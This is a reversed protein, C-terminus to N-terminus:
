INQLQFIKSRRIPRIFLLKITGWNFESAVIGAAITIIFIGVFDIMRSIDNVFSWISYEEHPSINHKIRYENIAIHREYYQERSKPGIKYKSWQKKKLSINEM